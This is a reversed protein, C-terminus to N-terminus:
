ITLDNEERIDVAARMVQSVVGVVLWLFAMVVFLFVLPYYFVAAPLCILSICGCCWQIVQVRRVNEKVFVREALINRLLKDMQLLAVGTIAACAYFAIIIAIREEPRLIRVQCYIDLLSPLAFLLVVLIVAILRTAWLTAVATSIKNKM